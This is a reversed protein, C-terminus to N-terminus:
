TAEARVRDLRDLEVRQRLQQEAARRNEAVVERYQVDQYWLAVAVAMVVAAASSIIVGVEAPRRRAWKVMREWTPTRRARIPHGDLFRRLDSELAAATQYRRGPDKELCKLCMTEVDRPVRLQLRSPPVPDDHVVQHMTELTTSSKFPPRGTLL